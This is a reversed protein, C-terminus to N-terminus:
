MNNFNDILEKISRITELADVDSREMIKSLSAIIEFRDVMTLIATNKSNNQENISDLEVYILLRKGVTYNNYTNPYKTLLFTSLGRLHNGINGFSSIKNDPIRIEIIVRNDETCFPYQLQVDYRSYLNLSANKAADRIDQIYDIARIRPDAFELQVFKSIM